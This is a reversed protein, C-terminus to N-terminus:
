KRKYDLKVGIWPSLAKGNEKMQVLMQKRPTVWKMREVDINLKRKSKEWYMEDLGLIIKTSVSGLFDDSFHDMQQSASILSIGFKRGELAIFNLPNRPDKDFFKSAEDVIIVDRIEGQKVEGKQVAEEFIKELSFLTFLNQEEHSLAKLIHRNVKAMPDFPAPTSKFVGSDVLSSIRQSVSTLVDQSSYLMADKVTQEFANFNLYNEMANRVNEKAKLLKEQEEETLMSEADKASGTFNKSAILRNLKKTAKHFSNLAQLAGRGTGFFSEETKSELFKALDHLTPYAKTKESSPTIVKFQTIEGKYQIAPIYWSKLSPNFRAGLSKAYDKDNYSVNLYYFESNGSSNRELSWTQPSDKYFGYYRYLDEMLSSLVACQKVGMKSTSKNLTNIFSQIRKRIGGYNPDPNIELPNIGFGTNESYTVASENECRIDGHVDFVHVKFDQYGQTIAQHSYNNALKRLLYTKGSGSMGGVVIHGNTTKSTDLVVDEVSGKKLKFNDIGLSCKM